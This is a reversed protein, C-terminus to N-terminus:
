FDYGVSVGFSRQPAPVFYDMGLSKLNLAYTHYKENLLNRVWLQINFPGQDYRVTADVKVYAKQDLNGNNNKDNFPSFWQHSSYSAYSSLSITGAGVDLARWDFGGSLNLKPAFPMQNGSLDTNDLNLIDYKADQYGVNANLRLRSTVKAVAELEFGYIRAKPANSLFTYPSRPNELHQNRYDYYFAAGSLSLRNDFLRGKAGLEYANVTEPQVYLISSADIYGFAGFAGNRYGRSYSGYILAGGSTEYSLVAKGTPRTSSGSRTPLVSVPDYPGVVPVSSSIPVDNVDFTDAKAREHTVKDHTLRAGLTFTLQDTLKYDAQFFGAYSHRQQTFTHKIHFGISPVFNFIEITDFDDLKDWGFYAGATLNLRDSSYVLRVEDNVAKSNARYTVLALDVPSGDVDLKNRYRAHDYSSMGVLKLSDSLDASVRLLAGYTDLNVYGPQGIDFQWFGEGQRTYGTLPNVGGPGIGPDKLPVQDSRNRAGYIKLDVDVTETPKVRLAFRGALNDFKGFRTNTGDLNNNRYPGDSREYNFTARIGLKDPVLTGEGAAEVHFYNFSGYEATFDGKAEGLGPRKTIYNVAGGTTNRGFLTGQPGRLVEVRETDFLQAGQAPRFAIYSDDVYFGVPSSQAADFVNAIGVGRVTFNPTNSGGFPSNVQVNPVRGGLDSVSVIGSASLAAGDFASVALPVKSLTQERRQATVIIDDVGQAQPSVSASAGEASTAVESAALVPQAWSLVLTSAIALRCARSGFQSKRVM